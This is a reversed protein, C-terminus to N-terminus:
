PRAGRIMSRVSITLIVALIVASTAAALTRMAGDVGRDNIVILTNQLTMLSFLADILDVTRLERVLLDGSKEKKKFHLSASVVRFMTYAAMAIAPILTMEVPKEFRAMLAIPVVLAANLLLLIAHTALFVRRAAEGRDEIGSRRIGRDEAILIGRLLSLLIYYICVSGHWLSSYRSGLFGNYVAFVVTVLFAAGSLILTKRDYDASIPQLFEKLYKM